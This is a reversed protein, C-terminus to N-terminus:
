RKDGAGLKYKKFVCKQPSENKTLVEKEIFITMQYLFFIFM